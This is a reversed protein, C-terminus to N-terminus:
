RCVRDIDTLNLLLLYTGPQKSTSAMKAKISSGGAQKKFHPKVTNASSISGCAGLFRPRFGLGLSSFFSSGLIFSVELRVVVVVM